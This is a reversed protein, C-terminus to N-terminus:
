AVMHESCGHRNLDHHALGFNRTLMDGHCSNAKYTSQLTIMFARTPKNQTYRRLNERAVIGDFHIAGHSPFTKRTISVKPLVKNAENKKGHLPHQVLLFWELQGYWVCHNKHSTMIIEVTSLPPLRSISIELISEHLELQKMMISEYFSPYCVCYKPKEIQIHIESHNTIASSFINGM